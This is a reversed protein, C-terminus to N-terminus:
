FLTCPFIYPVDSMSELQNVGSIQSISRAYVTQRTANVSAIFYPNRLSSTTLLHIERGFVSHLDDWLGFYRDSLGLQNTTEFEVLFDLDSRDPDFEQGSAASGFLELRRVEYKRCLAELEERKEQVDAIM